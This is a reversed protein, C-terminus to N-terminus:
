RATMERGSFSKSPRALSSASARYLDLRGAALAKRLKFHTAVARDHRDITGIGTPMSADLAIRHRRTAPMDMAPARLRTRPLM